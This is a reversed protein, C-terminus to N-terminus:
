SGLPIAASMWESGEAEWLQPYVTVFGAKNVTLEAVFGGRSSYRYKFEGTREYVQSLPELEFSPFRLWAAKVEMQQGVELNLRRIPLLNTAPSFNLDLDICGDVVSKAVGNVQWRRYADASLELDIDEDGFWGSVVASRTHWIADCDISYSLRCTRGEHLFVATGELRWESNLPRLCCAEHGQWYLARWLISEKTMVFTCLSQYRCSRETLKQNFSTNSTLRSMLSTAMFGSAYGASQKL